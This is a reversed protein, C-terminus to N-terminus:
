IDQKLSLQGSAWMSPMQSINFNESSTSFYQSGSKPSHVVYTFSISNNMDDFGYLSSKHILFELKYRKKEFTSKVEIDVPDSVARSDDGRFHTIEKAYFGSIEVPFIVFHHCFRSVSAADKMSKTAIFLEFADGKSFDPYESSSFATEVELAGGIGEDSYYLGVEAFGETYFLEHFTPLQYLSFRSPRTKFYPIDCDIEFLDIPMLCSKDKEFRFM